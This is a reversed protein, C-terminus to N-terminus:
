NGLLMGHNRLPKHFSSSPTLQNIQPKSSPVAPKRTNKNTSANFSIDDLDLKKFSENDFLANTQSDM